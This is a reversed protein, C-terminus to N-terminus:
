DDDDDENLPDGDGEDTDDRDRERVVCGPWENSVAEWAGAKTPNMITVSTAPIAGYWQFLTWDSAARYLDAKWLGASIPSLMAVDKM